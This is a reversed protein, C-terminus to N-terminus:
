ECGVMEEYKENFEGEERCVFRVMNEEKEKEFWGNCWEM